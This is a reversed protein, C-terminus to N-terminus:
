KKTHRSLLYHMMLRVGFGTGYQPLDGRCQGENYATGAIDIHAWPTDDIFEKIFAAGIIPSAYGKKFKSLNRLDAIDSKLSDCYEKYLPFRWLREGTSEGSSFLSQALDDNNSFLGAIIDGLANLIGGTLTAFDIIEQPAYKKVCYSLADALVLRGEADTSLIEVTKGSYSTYVDGPFYANSGIANHAAAIVGTVNIPAKIAILAKMVGLVVAAGAMDVRMSEIHGTPKLNQGGSDFTIGKGTLAIKKVSRPNGKYDIIILRPPTQSAQGVAYILNLGNKKLEKETLVELTVSKNGSLTRAEMELYEPTIEHANSNVLDRAYCVADTIIKIKKLDATTLSSGSLDIKKITEVPESKYKHFKYAGLVIGEVVATSNELSALKQDIIISVETRKLELAKQIAKAACYRIRQASIEETGLGSYIITLDNQYRFAIEGEDAKFDPISQEDPILFQIHTTYLPNKSCSFEM